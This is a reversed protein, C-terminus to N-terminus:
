WRTLKIIGKPEKPDCRKRAATKEGAYQFYDIFNQNDPLTPFWHVGIKDLTTHQRMYFVLAKDQMNVPQRTVDLTVEIDGPHDKDTVFSGDIHLIGQLGHSKMLRICQDLRELLYERRANYGFVSRLQALSCSHVGAPLLGLDNLRPLKAQM